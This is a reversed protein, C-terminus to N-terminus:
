INQKERYYTALHNRQCKPKNERAPTFDSARRSLRCSETEHVTDDMLQDKSTKLNIGDSKVNVSRINM